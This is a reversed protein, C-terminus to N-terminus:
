RGVHRGGRRRLRRPWAGARRSARRTGPALRDRSGSRGPTSHIEALAHFSPGLARIRSAQDSRPTKDGVVPPISISYQACPSANAALKTALRLWDTAAYFVGRLPRCDASRLYPPLGAPRPTAHLAAQTARPDLSPVPPSTSPTRRRAAGGRAVRPRLCARARSPAVPADCCAVPPSHHAQSILPSLRGAAADRRAPCPFSPPLVAGAGDLSAGGRADRRADRRPRRGRGTAEDPVRHLRRRRRRM